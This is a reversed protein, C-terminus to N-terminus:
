ARPHAARHVEMLRRVDVGTYRQTTSLSEHGLLTQITRLDGGGALLHTAFSHRLAHPTATEPLGLAGRLRQMDRRVIRDSLPGGKAGRFLATGREPAFPVLEAYRAVADRIAPLLPVRREKDGKGRVTLAEDMPLADMRLSLVEGIRLGAGYLLSFVAHNRADIWATDSSPEAMLDRAGAVSLPKPLTAPRKASRVLALAPCAIDHRRELYAYFTRIASLQRNLSASGVGGARRHALFSRFDQASLRGLTRASLRQGHHMSQFGILQRIDRGYAEVTRDSLRREGALHALFGALADDATRPARM